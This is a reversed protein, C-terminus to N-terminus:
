YISVEESYNDKRFEGCGWSVNNNTTKLLRLGDVVGGSLYSMRTTLELFVQGISVV